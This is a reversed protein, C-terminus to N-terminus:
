LKVDLGWANSLTNILNKEAEIFDDDANAIAVLDKLFSEKLNVDEVEYHIKGAIMQVMEVRSDATDNYWRMTEELFRDFEAESFGEAYKRLQKLIANLEKESLESDTLHAFALFLYGINKLNKREQLNM